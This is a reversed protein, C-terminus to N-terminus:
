IVRAIGKRVARDIQERMTRHPEFGKMVTKYIGHSKLAEILEPHQAPIAGRKVRDFHATIENVSINLM